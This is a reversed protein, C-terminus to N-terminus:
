NCCTIWPRGTHSGQAPGLHGVAGSAEPSQPRHLADMRRGEGSAYCSQEMRRSCRPPCPQVPTVSAPDRAAGTEHEKHRGMGM